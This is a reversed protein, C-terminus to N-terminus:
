AFLGVVGGLLQGITDKFLTLSGILSIAILAVMLVYEILTQGVEQKLLNKHMKILPSITM